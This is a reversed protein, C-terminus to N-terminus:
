LFLKFLLQVDIVFLIDDQTGAIGSKRVLGELHFVLDTGHQGAIDDDLFRSFILKFHSGYIGDGGHNSDVVGIQRCNGDLHPCFHLCCNIFEFLIQSMQSIIQAFRHSVFGKFDTDEAGAAVTGTDIGGDATNAFCGDHFVAHLDNADRGAEQAQDILFVFFQGFLLQRTDEGQTASDQASRPFFRELLIFVTKIMDVLRFQDFLMVPLHAKIGNDADASVPCLSSSRHQRLFAQVDDPQGLGDVVVYPAGIHSKAKVRGQAYGGLGDVPQMGGGVAVLTDHDDFQHAM